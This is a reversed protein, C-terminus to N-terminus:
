NKEGGRDFSSKLTVGKSPHQHIKAALRRRTEECFEDIFDGSVRTFARGRERCIALALDRTAKRNLIDSM